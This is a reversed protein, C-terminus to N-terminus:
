TSVAYGACGADVAYSSDLSNTQTITDEVAACPSDDVYRILTVDILKTNTQLYYGSGTQGRHGERGGYHPPATTGRLPSM